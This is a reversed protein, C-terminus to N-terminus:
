NILKKSFRLFFKEEKSKFSFKPRYVPQTSSLQRYEADGRLPRFQPSFKFTKLKQQPSDHPKKAKRGSWFEKVLRLMWQFPNNGDDEREREEARYEGVQRYIKGDLLIDDTEIRTKRLGLSSLPPPQATLLVAVIILVLM